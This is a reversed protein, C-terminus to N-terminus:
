ATSYYDSNTRELRKVYESDLYEGLVEELLGPFAFLIHTGARMQGHTIAKDEITEIEPEALIVGVAKCLELEYAIFARVEERVIALDPSFNAGAETWPGHVAIM